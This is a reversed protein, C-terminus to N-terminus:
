AMGITARWAGSYTMPSVKQPHACVLGILLGQAAHEVFKSVFNAFRHQDLDAEDEYTLSKVEVDRGVELEQIVDGVDISNAEGHM